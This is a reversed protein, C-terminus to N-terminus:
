YQKNHAIEDVVAEVGQKAAETALTKAGSVLVTQMM